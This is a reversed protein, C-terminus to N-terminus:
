MRMKKLKKKLKIQDKVKSKKEERKAEPDAIQKKEGGKKKKKFINGKKNKMKKMQLEVYKKKNHQRIQADNMLEEVLTQKREKKTLRAGYYETSDDIVTGMQFFTNDMHKSSRKFFQKPDLSGRMQILKMDELDASGEEQRKIGRRTSDKEAKRQKKIQRRSKNSLKTDYISPVDIDEVKSKSQSSPIGQQCFWNGPQSSYVTSNNFWDVFYDTNNTIGGYGSSDPSSQSSKKAPPKGFCDWWPTFNDVLSGANGV